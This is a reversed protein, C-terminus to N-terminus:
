LSPTHFRETTLYFEVEQTPVQKSEDLLTVTKTKIFGPLWRQGREHLLLVRRSLLLDQSAVLQGQSRPGAALKVVPRLTRENVAVDGALVDYSPGLSLATEDGKVEVDLQTEGLAAYTAMGGLSTAFLLYRRHPFRRANLYFRRTESLVTAQDDTTVYVEWWVVQQTATVLSALELAQYSVPLCYVEYNRVDDAGQRIFVQSTHDSFGVRVMTRFNGPAGLVMYYLYEPQDALVYKANPEWTLFPLQAPQYSQFWTLAQSEYFNLGGRVVYKHELTTTAGRVPEQGFQEAHQLYFRRFLPGALEPTSAGVQPVHWELFADLLGEVQFTTRGQRDAPQELSTGIQVFDGSLYELELFVDVLFTLNPKTTPDLRYAEGADLALLIPNRSWYFRNPVLNVEVEVTAGHSDTITCYYKGAKLGTRNATTKGDAWLYTYPGVGGRVLLTIDSDTTITTVELRPDSGVRIPVTTTAGSADTVLVTYTAPGVLQTRREIGPTPAQDAWSYTYIGVTGNSPRLTIAGTASGYVLAPTVDYDVFVPRVGNVQSLITWGSPVQSTSARFNLDSEAGLYQSAVIDFDVSNGLNPDGVYNYPGTVQYALGRRAITQRVLKLLNAVGEMLYLRYGETRDPYDTPDPVVYEDANGGRRYTEWVGGLKFQVQQTQDGRISSIIDWSVRVVLKTYRENAM